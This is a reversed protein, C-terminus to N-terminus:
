RKPPIVDKPDGENPDPDITPDTGIDSTSNTGITVIISDGTKSTEGTKSTKLPKLDVKQSASDQSQVEEDRESTCSYVTLAIAAGM